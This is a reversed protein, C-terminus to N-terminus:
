HPIWDQTFFLAPKFHSTVVDMHTFQHEQTPLQGKIKIRLGFRDRLAGRIIKREQGVVGSVKEELVVIPFQWLGALLGKGEKRHILYRGDQEVLAVAWVQKKVRRPPGKKKGKEVGQWGCFRKVPCQLCRPQTPVCILAGLDMLAQNFDSARGSPILQGVSDELRKKQRSTEEPEGLIRSVVRKVNGDLAAVPEHFAISAVAGAIYPGFGPLTLLEKKTPPIAGAHRRLIARAAAHLHRARAYYGMGAWVKLVSQLSARALSHLTPFTKLFREYYPLVTEVRTQQLMFESVMVRYPDPNKRWPLDRKHGAYWRLLASQFARKEPLRLKYTKPSL